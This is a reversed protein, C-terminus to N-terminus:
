EVLLVEEDVDAEGGHPEDVAEGVVLRAAHGRAAEIVALADREAAAILFAAQEHAADVMAQSDTTLRALAARADAHRNAAAGLAIASGARAQARASAADADVDSAARGVLAAQKATADILNGALEHISSVIHELELAGPAPDDATRIDILPEDPEDVPEVPTEDEIALGGLVFPVVADSPAPVAASDAVVAVPVPADDTSRMAAVVASALQAAVMDREQADMDDLTMAVGDEPLPEPTEPDVATPVPVGERLDLPPSLDIVPGAPLARERIPAEEAEAAVVRRRLRNRGLILLAQVGAIALAILGWPYSSSSAAFTGNPAFGAVEGKVTYSGFALAGYDVPVTITKVEGPQLTGVKPIAVIGTPNDGKGVAATINPEVIAVNGTNKLTLELMRTPAAGFWQAFSDSGALRAGQVQLARTVDPFAAGTVVPDGSPLGEITVPLPVGVTSDIGSARIVCPCPTPPTGITMAAAFAGSDDAATVVSGAEDCDPTSRRADNGCLEVHVQAGAPWSLGRVTVQQGVAASSPDMAIAPPIADDASVTAPVAMLAAVAAIATLAARM